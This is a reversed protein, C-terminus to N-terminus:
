FCGVYGALWSGLVEGTNNDVVQVSPTKLTPNIVSATLNEGQGNTM